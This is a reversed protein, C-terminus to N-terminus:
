FVEITYMCSLIISSCAYTFVRTAHGIHIDTNLVKIIISFGYTSTSIVIQKEHKLRKNQCM